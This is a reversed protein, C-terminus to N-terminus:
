RSLAGCPSLSKSLPAAFFNTMSGWLRNLAPTQGVPRRLCQALAENTATMQSLVRTCDPHCLSSGTGRPADSRRTARERLPTRGGEWETTPHNQGLRPAQTNLAKALYNVLYASVSFPQRRRNASARM